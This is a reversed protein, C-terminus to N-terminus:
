GVEQVSAVTPIEGVVAFGGSEAPGASLTGGVLHLRERMGVLGRGGPAMGETARSPSGHDTVELRLARDSWTLVVEASVDPGAHKVVNTLAEQVLRYAALHGSRDLPQPEGEIRLGVPQGSARVREVLEPLSDLMPQPGLAAPGPDADLVGLMTRIDNLAERGTDAITALAVAAARPDKAAVYRGGEAQRVMVSVSHAIVDHLERAIRAREDAAAERRRRDRDVEARHAREVLAMMQDTRLRRFRGLAWAALVSAVMLGTLFLLDPVGGVMEAPESRSVWARVAVLLSGTVGVLLSLLPWRGRSDASLSYAAVLYAASSPVLVAPYTAVTGADHLRPGLALLLEAGACVAFVVLPARSRLGVAVHMAALAVYLGAAWGPGLASDRVVGVSAPLLVAALVAALVLDGAWRHRSVWDEEPATARDSSM